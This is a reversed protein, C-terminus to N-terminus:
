EWVPRAAEWVGDVHRVALADVIGSASWALLDEGGADRGLKVRRDVDV